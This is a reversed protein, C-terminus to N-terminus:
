NSRSFRGRVFSFSEYWIHNDYYDKWVAIKGDSPRCEFIGVVPLQMGWTSKDKQDKWIWKDLRETAVVDGKALVNWLDWHSKEARSLIGHIIQRVDKQGVVPPLPLNHYKIDETCLSMAADTDLDMWAQCFARVTAENRHQIATGTAM